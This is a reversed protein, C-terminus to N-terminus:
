LAVSPPIGLREEEEELIVIRPTVMLMISTTQRGIGINRFLRDILPIKSMIPVGQENREERLSKVGGMLVTGGDPVTVTTTITFTTVNPLQITANITASAGGLGSGGVAAPVQITTFNNLTNFFPALTLRVYRRDASVVPTVTLTVGSPILGVGPVFAVSGPGVIPFLTAIYYQSTNSFITAPAGNFTTLKPAQTVNSRSDGQAAQLFMFVEVDSLFAIGFTMGSNPVFNFPNVQAATPGVYQMNLNNSFNNLGAGGTGVILPTQGPYAHDRIPNVIYVPATGTSTSTGTTTGSATTGGGGTAGAAAGGTAGAAAGGGGGGGTTGTTGGGGTTGTTGTATGGTTGTATSTSTVIGSIIAAPNPFAFTTHKGVTDSQIQFDFDVGIQEFFNDTVNIFRVEVSVQLDQLRRLQRLLDAVQEHVEATHRIILSISLFFPTIAGPPRNQDLGGGGGDGGGLGAGLGYAASVDQNANDYVRWTGPAISTTILQIIPTMDLKPREGKIVGDGSTNQNLRPDAGYAGQVPVPGGAANSAHDPSMLSHAMLNQPPKDPPMILDGVYYTKPYTQAQSAQASTILVVEDEVKYTLNLPRLLLKLAAKLSIQNVALSVPSASTLGEESLAKPDLVINLGTYNQLYTIAESLPQKDMNMSIREKLKSEIALVKPDKQPELRANMALRERTLDKFTKPFKIDRLQVEPDMISAETVGQFAQVVGEEQEARLEKDQKFRREWRAKYVMLSAAVENPDVEMARKAFAECELYNGNAYATTAKDMLEKMRAKKANDAELIRLRKIEIEARLKKDQMRAEFAVKDKKALELAVELRRTMPRTLDASLGAAGVAQITREYLSIAKDPDIEQLRRGEAIKTGVEANLKQAALAEADQVPQSGSKADPKGKDDAPLKQLLSEVKGRLNEDLADGAATVETLLARARTNNGSRLSALASEYLGLAGGQEALTIQAALEDAQADVRLKGTKAQSVLNKAAQYNGSKYLESAEALLQEGKHAAAGAAPSDVKPAAAAAAPPEAVAAPPAPSEDTKHDSPAALEPAAGPEPSASQRVALDIDAKPADAAAALKPPGQPSAREVEAFKAQAAAQDGKDLLENAQRELAVAPAEAGPKPPVVMPEKRARAMAVEHLVAEARDATLGPVVNMREAQRAKAEAEDLKGLALLQRSEQVLIDYIGQSSQEKQPTNRIKDRRRLARAASAVKDPSDEFLGYSLGWSKVDLAIAEAQEFQRADLAARAERLRAKATRRDHPMGPQVVGGPSAKPRAKKIEETVKAPTDDFLGWKIDLADAEDAKRQAADYNGLHIQERAEHLLWRARQKVDTSSQVMLGSRASEPAAAAAGHGSGSAPAAAPASPGAAPSEAKAAGGPAAAKSSAVVAKAKSLEKLYADLTTQEDPLLQDRYSNAAELYKSALELQQSTEAANFLRAGAELYKIPAVPPPQRTAKSPSAAADDPAACVTAGGWAGLIL